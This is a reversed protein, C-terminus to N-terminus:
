IQKKNPLLSTVTFSFLHTIDVWSKPIFLVAQFLAETLSKICYPDENILIRQRKQM